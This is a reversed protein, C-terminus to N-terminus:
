ESDEMSEWYREIRNVIADHNDELYQKERISMVVAGIPLAVAFAVNWPSFWKVNHKTKAQNVWMKQAEWALRLASYRVEKFRMM